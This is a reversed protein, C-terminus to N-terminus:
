AGALIRCEYPKVSEGVRIIIEGRQWEFLMPRGDDSLHLWWHVLDYTSFSSKGVVNVASDGRAAEYYSVGEFNMEHNIEDPNELRANLTELLYARISERQEALLYRTQSASSLLYGMRVQSGNRYITIGEVKYDVLDYSFIDGVKMNMLSRAEVKVGEDRNAKFINKVRKLMSM